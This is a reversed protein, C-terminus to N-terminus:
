VFALNYFAYAVVRRTYIYVQRWRIRKRSNYIKTTKGWVLYLFQCLTYPLLFSRSLCLSLSEFFIVIVCKHPCIRAHPPFTIRHLVCLELSSRCFHFFFCHFSFHTYSNLCHRTLIIYKAFPMVFSFSRLLLFLSFVYRCLVCTLCFAFPMNYDEKSSNWIIIEIKTIHKGNLKNTIAQKINSNANAIKNNQAWSKETFPLQTLRKWQISNM